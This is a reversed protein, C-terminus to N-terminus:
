TRGKFADDKDFSAELPVLSAPLKNACIEEMSDNDREDPINKEFYQINHLFKLIQEDDKFV